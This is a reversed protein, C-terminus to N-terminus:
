PIIQSRKLLIIVLGEWHRRWDTYWRRLSALGRAGRTAHNRERWRTADGLQKATGPSRQGDRNQSEEQRERRGDIEGSRRQPEFAVLRRVVAQGVAEGAVAVHRELPLIQDPDPLLERRRFADEQLLPTVEM